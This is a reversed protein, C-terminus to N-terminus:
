KAGLKTRVAYAAAESRTRLNLKALVNAVHHEVTKRSIFLREAIEPNSLGHGLLDLVEAERSTLASVGASRGPAVRLGLSRLLAAATDIDRAAQLRVFCDLAAKAEARAVDPLEDAVVAAFALQSRASELPLQAEAFQDVAVRFWRRAAPDGSAAALRGRAFATVATLYLADHGSACEELTAVTEAAEEVAATALQIDVLLALLPVASTSTPEIRALAREVIERARQVHGQQLLLMGLPRACEEDPTLGALLQEAEELRGQRIRLDALRARAGVQLTRRGLAWLRVADILAAEAEPWRGAATMVGGFHTHCYAVVVPLNRRAAVAEGVRLWQEARAVDHARECASFMQCFIEEIVFLDGVEGGLVAALSEDLRAMGEEVRDAHVLSAGLYASAAFALDNDLTATAVELAEEFRRHKLSREREFMGLTLAVWGRESSDAATGLLHQARAIWGSGIAWDGVVIGYMYGLMRAVRVAGVGSEDARYGAYSQQWLDIAEDFEMVLYAAFGLGELAASNPGLSLAAQFSTRAVAADGRRLAAQGDAILDSATATVIIIM